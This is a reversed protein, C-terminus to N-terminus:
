SAGGLIRAILSGEYVVPYERLSFVMGSVPAAIMQKVTGELPDIIKGVLDGAKIGKWHEIYPVFIGAAEAHIMEVEGDTSIIPKRIPSVQGDWIGLKKMVHLLGDVIQDGFDKAIRMGVGMEIALTPVGKQNLSHTLTADKVTKSEYAWIFDVNLEMAYEFLKEIHEHRIRVQPIERIFIDSAHLDICLDAGEVDEVICSAVYEVLDGNKYGPFCRNMDIDFTPIGRSISEIGLPNMCPYIDVIGKLSELSDQIRRVLEYCVYQGELEDGHIGSVICIRKEHGSAKIPQLTNKKLTLVEGVPLGVSVVTKVM